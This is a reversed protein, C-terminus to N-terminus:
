GSRMNQYNADLRFLFFTTLKNDLSRNNIALILSNSVCSQAQIENNMTAKNLSLDGTVTANSGSLCFNTKTHLYLTLFGQKGFFIYHTQKQATSALAISWYKEVNEALPTQFPITHEELRCVFFHSHNKKHRVLFIGRMSSSDMGVRIM